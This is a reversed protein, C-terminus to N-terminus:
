AGVLLTSASSVLMYVVYLGCESSPSASSVDATLFRKIAAWKKILETSLVNM